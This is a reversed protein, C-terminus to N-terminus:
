RPRTWIHLLDGGVQESRKLVFRPADSIGLSAMAGVSPVADAGLAFGATFLVLDDVLDSKLLSSALRAGGECFVRTVGLDAMRSLASALDIGEPSAQCVVPRAGTRLWADISVKAARDSHFIWVPTQSASRGLACDVPIFLESDFFIRTPSNEMGLERPTLMPDDSAVTGKGVLVADHTARMLHVRRRASPGTIWKSKGEFDALRGDMTQALKLTVLPRNELVSLLFGRHDIRAEEALCETRVRIGAESLLRHGAGKVQPNPDEIASVVEAVGASVLLNACPPTRGFHSCPELTVYATGAKAAKGAMSLAISEAHATPQTWGRGVLKGDNVIVCGVSPRHSGVQGLGRRGLNLAIRM